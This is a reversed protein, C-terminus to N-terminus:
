QSNNGVIKILQDHSYTLYLLRYVCAQTKREWIIGARLLNPWHQLIHGIRKRCVRHAKERYSNKWVSFLLRGVKM